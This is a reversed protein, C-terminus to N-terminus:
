YGRNKLTEGRLMESGLAFRGPTWPWLRAPFFVVSHTKSAAPNQERGM